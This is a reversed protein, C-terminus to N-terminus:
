YFLGSARIGDLMINIALAALLLGSARYLVNLIVEKLYKSLMSSLSTLVILIIYNAFLALVVILHSIFHSHESFLIIGASIAGPGALIPIALPFIAVDDKIQDMQEQNPSEPNQGFIMNIGNIALLLGGAIRFSFLQIQLFKFIYEGLVMAAVIICFSILMSRKMVNYKKSVSYKTTLSLFIVLFNVPTLVAFFTLFSLLSFSFMSHPDM